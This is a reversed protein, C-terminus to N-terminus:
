WKINPNKNYFHILDTTIYAGHNGDKHEDHKSRANIAVVTHYTNGNLSETIYVPAGSEGSTEDTNYYMLDDNSNIVQGNATYMMHKTQTNVNKTGNADGPFGTVTVNSNSSFFSNLPVGLNFHTYSSLDEKVTILAYDYKEYKQYEKYDNNLEHKIFESPYHYEVPTAQLTVNGDDDFLLIDKIIQDYVCHAATAITHDDVVFGSAIYPYTTDVAVDEYYTRLKVVGSKDWNIVRDDNGIISRSNNVSQVPNLYYSGTKVGTKANFVYYQRRSNAADTQNNSTYSLSLIMMLAAMFVAVCRKANLVKIKSM